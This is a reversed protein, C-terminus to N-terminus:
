CTRSANMKTHIINVLNTCDTYRSVTPLTLNYVFFTCFYFLTRNAFETYFTRTNHSTIIVVFFCGVFICFNVM